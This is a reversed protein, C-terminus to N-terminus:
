KKGHKYLGRYCNLLLKIKRKNERGRRKCSGEIRFTDALSGGVESATRVVPALPRRFIFATGRATSERFPASDRFRAPNTSFPERFTFTTSRVFARHASTAPSSIVVFLLAADCAGGESFTATSCFTGANRCTFITLKYICTFTFIAHIGRSHSSQKSLLPSHQIRLFNLGKGSHRLFYLFLVLPKM